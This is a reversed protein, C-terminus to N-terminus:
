FLEISGASMTSQHVPKHKEQTLKAKAERMRGRIEALRSVYEHGNGTGAKALEGLDACAVEILSKLNELNGQTQLVAQRVIDEFQLSRVALTVNGKIQSTFDSIEDLRGAIQRNFDGLGKLMEDVQGKATIARSMDRSAIDAVIRNAEVITAKTGEMYGVIQKNFTNSHLALQRVESAVVAFGRGADGARAAEISANLALLNTQDAISKIGGLLKFVEDSKTSIDDIKEVLQVSGKSMDVILNIFYEMVQGAEQIVAHVDRSGGDVNTVTASMHKILSLVMEQEAHSLAELGTFSSNLSVVADAVLSRIQELEGNMLGAYDVVSDGVEQSLDRLGEGLPCAASNQADRLKNEMRAQVIGGSIIWAAITVLMWVGKVWATTAFLVGGLGAFSVALAIGYRKIFEAFMQSENRM